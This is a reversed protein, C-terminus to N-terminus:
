EEPAWWSSWVDDEKNLEIIIKEGKDLLLLERAEKAYMCERVEDLSDEINKNIVGLKDMRERGTESNYLKGSNYILADFNCDEMCKKMNNVIEDIDEEKNTDSGLNNVSKVFINNRKNNREILYNVADVTVFPRVQSSREGHSNFEINMFDKIDYIEAKNLIEDARKETLGLFAVMDVFRIWYVGCEDEYYNYIVKVGDIVEENVKSFIEVM